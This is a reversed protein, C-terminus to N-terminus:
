GNIVEILDQLKGNSLELVKSLDYVIGDRQVQISLNINYRAAEVNNPYTVATSVSVTTFWRSLYSTLVSDLQTSFAEPDQGYEGVLYAMSSISGAYLESKSYKATLFDAMCQDLTEITGTLWGKGGLNIGVAVM